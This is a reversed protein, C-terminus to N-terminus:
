SDHELRDIEIGLLTLSWAIRRPLGTCAWPKWIVGNPSLLGKGKLKVGEQPRWNKWIWTTNAGKSISGPHRGQRRTASVGQPLCWMPDENSVYAHSSRARPIVVVREWSDSEAVSLSLRLRVSLFHILLGLEQLIGTSFHSSILALKPAPHGSGHSSSGPCSIVAVGVLSTYKGLLKAKWICKIKTFLDRRPHPLSVPLPTNYLLVLWPHYARSLLWNSRQLWM